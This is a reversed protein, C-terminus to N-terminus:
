FLSLQGDCQKKRPTRPRYEKENGAFADIPSFAFDHCRNPSKATAENIWRGQKDCWLWSGTKLYACNRCYQTM